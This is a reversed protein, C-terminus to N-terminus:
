DDPDHGESPRGLREGGSGLVRDIGSTPISFGDFVFLSVQEPRIKCFKAIAMHCAIFIVLCIVFAVLFLLFHLM